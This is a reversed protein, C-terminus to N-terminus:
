SVSRGPDVAENRAKTASAVPEIRASMQPSRETQAAPRGFLTVLIQEAPGAMAVRGRELAVITQCASLLIPSHTVVLTARTKSLEVLSARLDLEAQRDLHSSPEDLCLLIPDGLIARALALRQRQGASLRFGAEGIDTAYGAALDMVMGHIGARKAAAIIEADTAEPLRQCIADRVTGAFLRCEQPVYGIWSALERRTFQQVDAGDILVRGNDPRYLGQALKLLTSKGSGNAGILSHLGRAPLDLSLERIVPEGQTPYAFTVDTFTLRGSPRENRIVPNRPEEAEGFLANLRAAAQRAGVLNRWSGVIQNVTGLLRTSLMNAAILAGITLQQNLIAVAGVSTMAITTIMTLGIGLNAYSDAKAGRDVAHEIASAHAEEWGPRAAAELSLAKVTSRGAILESLLTDRALLGSRESQTAASVVHGSRWAIGLYIPLVAVLVWIVPPAIIYAVGLFLFVFPLDCILVATAGSFANRVVDVDRFATQWYAASRNELVALPVAMMKDFLRRGVDVDVRVAATQLIRSRAQRVVFDFVIVVAMGIVLGHLTSLGAHFVVRDYVQLIFIPIALALTNIVLSLAAVERFIPGLRTLLQRLVPKM